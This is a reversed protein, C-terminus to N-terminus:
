SDHANMRPARETGPILADQKKVVTQARAYERFQEREFIPVRSKKAGNSAVWHNHYLLFCLSVRLGDRAFPDGSRIVVRLGYLISILGTSGTNESQQRM